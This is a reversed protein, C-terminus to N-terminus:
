KKAAFGFNRARDELDSIARKVDREHRYMKQLLLLLAAEANDLQTEADMAKESHLSQCYAYTKVLGEDELCASECCEVIEESM